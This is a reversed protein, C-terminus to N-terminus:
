IKLKNYYKEIKVFGAKKLHGKDQVVLYSKRLIVYRLFSNKFQLSFQDFFRLLKGMNQFSTSSYYYTDQSKRYGLFGGFKLQIQKLLIDKKQDIQGLLRIEPRLQHKRNSISVRLYGDADFFGSFWPTHWDITYNEVTKGSVFNPVLRTNYQWIKDPHKLKNKILLAIKIIGKRNSIIWNCANKGKIKRVHGYEVISRFKYVSEIDRSDFTIVIYGNKSIHGGGDILGALYYSFHELDYNKKNPRHISLKKISM